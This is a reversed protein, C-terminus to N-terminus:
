LLLCAYRLVPTGRAAILMNMSQAAGAIASGAAFLGISWMMVARRGFVNSLGGTPPMFAASSLAYASGVWIFDSGNLDNVITPLATSVSSLELASLFVAM